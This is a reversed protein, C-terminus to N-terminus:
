WSSWLIEFELFIGHFNLAKWGEKLSVTSPHFCSFPSVARKGNVGLSM